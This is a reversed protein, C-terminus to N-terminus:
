LPPYVQDLLRSVNEWANDWAHIMDGLIQQAELDRASDEYHDIFAMFSRQARVDAECSHLQEWATDLQSRLSDRSPVSAKLLSVTM